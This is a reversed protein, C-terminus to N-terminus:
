DVHLGQNGCGGAGPWYTFLVESSEAGSIVCSVTEPSCGRAGIGDAAGFSCKGGMNYLIITMM